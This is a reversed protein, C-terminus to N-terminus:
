TYQFASGAKDPHVYIDWLSAIRANLAFMRQRTGVYGVGGKSPDWIM